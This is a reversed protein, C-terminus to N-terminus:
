CWPHWNQFPANIVIVDSQLQGSRTINSPGISLPPKVTFVTSFELIKDPSASGFCWGFAQNSFFCVGWLFFFCPVQFFSGQKWLFMMKWVKWWRKQAEWIEKRKRTTPKVPAMPVKGLELCELPWSRRHPTKAVFLFGWKSHHMSCNSGIIASTGGEKKCVYIYIYM